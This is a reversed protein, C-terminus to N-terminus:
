WGVTDTQLLAEHVVLQRAGSALTMLSLKPMSSASITLPMWRANTDNVHHINWEMTDSDFGVVLSIPIQKYNCESTYLLIM